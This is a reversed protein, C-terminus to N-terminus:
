DRLRSSEDLNDLFKLVRDLFILIWAKFDAKFGLRCYIHYFKWKGFFFLGNEVRTWQSCHSIFAACVCVCKLYFKITSVSEDEGWRWKWGYFVDMDSKSRRHSCFSIQLQIHLGSVCGYLFHTFFKSPMERLALSNTQKGCAPHFDIFKLKTGSNPEYTLSKYIWQTVLQKQPVSVPHFDM